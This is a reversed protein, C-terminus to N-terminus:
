WSRASERALTNSIASSSPQSLTAPSSTVQGSSSCCLVAFDRLFMIGKTVSNMSVTYTDCQPVFMCICVNHLYVCQPVFMCIYVYVTCTYTVCEPLFTCVGCSRHLTQIDFHVPLYPLHKTVARGRGGECPSPPILLGHQAFFVLPRHWPM